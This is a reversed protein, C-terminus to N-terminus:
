YEVGWEAAEGLVQLLRGIDAITHNARLSIRIGAQTFPVTPPRIAVCFIQHAALHQALRLAQDVDGLVVPQIAHTYGKKSSASRWGRKVLGDHFYEINKTLTGLEPGPRQVVRLAALLACAQAASFGSSYIYHRSQQWASEVVSRHSAVFGGAVGFAKAFSGSVIDVANGMALGRVGAGQRGTTGLGHADDVWLLTNLHQRKFSVLESLPTADGDMSFIGESAVVSPVKEADKGTDKIARAYLETLHRTDNHRFRRLPNPRNGHVAQVADYMSAHNRKDFYYTPQLHQLAAVVAHNAAYGSSTLVVEDYGLWTALADSLRQHPIHYGGILPSGGSSCGYEQLGDQFAAVVEPHSTLGLYDNSSFDLWGNLLLKPQRWLRQQKRQLLQNQLQVQWPTIEM